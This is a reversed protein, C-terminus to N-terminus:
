KSKSGDGIEKIKLGRKEKKSQLEDVMHEVPAIIEEEVAACLQKTSRYGCVEEMFWDYKALSAVMGVPTGGTSLDFILKIPVELHPAVAGLELPVGKVASIDAIIFCSGAEPKVDILEKLEFFDCRFIYDDQNERIDKASVANAHDLFERERYDYDERQIKESFRDDEYVGWTKRPIYV